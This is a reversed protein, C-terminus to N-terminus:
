IGCYKKLKTKYVIPYSLSLVTILVTFLLASMQDKKIDPFLEIAGMYILMLLPWHLLFWYMSNTGIFTFPWIKYPIKKFIYNFIMINASAYFLWSIYTGEITSNSRFDVMAPFILSVIFISTMIIFTTNKYQYLKMHYGLGYFFMGPFFNSIYYPVLIYEHKVIWSLFSGIIGCLIWGQKYKDIFLPSLSKVFLLTILFWIHLAGEHIGGGLLCQKLPSLVYHIWNFDNKLYLHLAYVIYGITMFMIYPRKFKDLAHIFNMRFTFNEHHFMGSKFFFWAMFCIFFSSIREFTFSDTSNAFQLCHLLIMYIIMIGGVTDISFDRKIQQM